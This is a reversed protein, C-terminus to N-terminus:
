EEEEKNHPLAISSKKNGIMMGVAFSSTFGSQRFNQVNIGNKPAFITRRWGTKSIDYEYELNLSITIKGIRVRPCMAIKPSFYPNKQRIQDNDYMRLRGTNFGGFVLVDANKYRYLLDIGILSIGINFGMMKGQITDSITISKPILISFSQYGSIYYKRNCVLPGVSGIGVYNLSKEFNYNGISNLQGDLDAQYTRQSYIFDLSGMKTAFKGSQAKSFCHLFLSFLILLLYKVM